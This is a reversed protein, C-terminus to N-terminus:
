AGRFYGTRDVFARIIAADDYPLEILTKVAAGKDRAADYYRRAIRYGVFYGLDSVGFPNAASNWLWNDYNDSAMEAIFRAKVEAEHAPGYRYVPLAPKRGTIREAVLEAVGERLSQQLLNGQTEQQQTHVYEHINNQANNAFPRSRFFTALRSRMPEPLESVDVTEDGLALEAGILVKDAMTTGGTRLVGIAYTISAPRLEPYLRRFRAVDANLTAVAARSRATLPRVSTWFKPWRAIADVYQQDTYRRAAMLAHLGPTGPEIYLTRILHLREAPDDTANIADFAIWFRAIDSDIVLTPSAPHSITQPVPAAAALAIGCIAAWATAAIRAGRM